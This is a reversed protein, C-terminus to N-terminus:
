TKPNLPPIPCRKKTNRARRRRSAFCSVDTHVPTGKLDKLNKSSGVYVSVSVQEASFHLAIVAAPWRAADSPPLPPALASHRSQPREASPLYQALGEFLEM